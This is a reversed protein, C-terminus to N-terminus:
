AYHGVNVLVIKAVISAGFRSLKSLSLGKNDDRYWIGLRMSTIQLVILIGDRALFREACHLGDFKTRAGTILGVREVTGKQREECSAGTMQFRGGTEVWAVPRKTRMFRRAYNGANRQDSVFFPLFISLISHADVTATVGV